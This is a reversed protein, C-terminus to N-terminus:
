TELVRLPAFCCSSGFAVVTCPPLRFPYVVFHKAGSACHNFFGLFVLWWVGGFNWLMVVFCHLVTWAMKSKWLMLSQMLFLFLVELLWGLFTSYQESSLVWFYKVPSSCRRCRLFIEETMLNQQWLMWFLLLVWLERTSQAMQHWHLGLSYKNRSSSYISVLSVLSLTRAEALTPCFLFWIMKLSRAAPRSSRDLLDQGLNCSCGERPQVTGASDCCSPNWDPNQAAVCTESKQCKM